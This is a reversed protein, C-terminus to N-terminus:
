ENVRWSAALRLQLRANLLDADSQIRAAEAAFADRDAQILDLQSAVGSRYRARAIEAAHASVRAQARASRSRALDAEITSWARHIADATALRTADERARAAAAEAAAVRIGPVTTFDFAWGAGITAAWVDKYGGTFGTANTFRQTASASITPVLTLRQGTAAREAAERAAVASRVAPTAATAGLFEALPREQHLDDALAPLSGLEPRVGTQSELARAALAVALEAATVEQSQREVEASAREVDLTTATGAKLGERTLELNVRVVELQKRAADVLALNAALQYYGQVVQAEVELATAQRRQEAAQASRRAASIRAFRALDVLPVTVTISADRQNRPAVVLGGFSVERQNRTYAASAAVGPLARGLAESAQAAAGEQTAEAERNGPNHTRAGRVFEELPQLAWAPSAVLLVALLPLLKKM